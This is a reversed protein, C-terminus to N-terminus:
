AFTKQYDAASLLASLEKPDSMKIKLMWGEGYPDQNVKEPHDKLGANIEVVEGSVPTYLNSVTKISEVVGIEQLAKVKVGLKPLDVFVVDGLADQAHHSIGIVAIDGEAKAWEHEKSYKLNEPYM